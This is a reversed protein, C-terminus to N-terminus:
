WAWCSDLTKVLCVSMIYDDTNQDVGIL